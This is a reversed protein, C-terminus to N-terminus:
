RTRRRPVYTVTVKVRGNPADDLSYSVIENNRALEDLWRDAAVNSRMTRTQTIPEPAPEPAREPEPKAAPTPQAPPVAPTSAPTAPAPRRTTPPHPQAAPAASVASGAARIEFTSGWDAITLTKGLGGYADLVAQEFLQEARDLDNDLLAQNIPDFDIDRDGIARGGDDKGDYAVTVTGVDVEDADALAPVAMATGAAAAAEAVLEEAEQIAIETALQEALAILTPVRSPPVAESLWRQATRLKKGAAAALWRAAGRGKHERIAAQAEEATVFQAPEVSDRADQRAAAIAQAVLADVLDRFSM